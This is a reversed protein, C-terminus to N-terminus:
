ESSNVCGTLRGSRGNVVSVPSMWESANKATRQCSRFKLPTSGFPAGTTCHRGTFRSLQDPHSRVLEPLKAINM